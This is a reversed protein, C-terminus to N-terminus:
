TDTLKMPKMHKETLKMLQTFNTEHAKRNTEHANRNTEHAQQTLKM